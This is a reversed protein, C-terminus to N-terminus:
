VIIYETPKDHFHLLIVFLCKNIKGQTTIASQTPAATPNVMPDATTMDITVATTMLADTWLDYNTKINGISFAIM